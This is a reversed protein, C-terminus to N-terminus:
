LSKSSERSCQSNCEIITILNSLNCYFNLIQLYKYLIRFDFSKNSSIANQPMLIKLNFVFHM